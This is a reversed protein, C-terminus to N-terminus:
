DPADDPPGPQEDNRLRMLIGDAVTPTESGRLDHLASVTRRLSAMFRACPPCVHTHDEVRRREDQHLGGDLFASAESRTFRHDRHFRIPHQPVARMM